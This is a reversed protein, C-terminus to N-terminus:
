GGGEIERDFSDKEIQELTQKHKGGSLGHKKRYKPDFWAEVDFTLFPSIAGLNWGVGATESPPEDRRHRAFALVGREIRPKLAALSLEAVGTTFRFEMSLERAAPLWIDRPLPEQLAEKLLRRILVRLYAERTELSLSGETLVGSPEVRLRAYVVGSRSRAQVFRPFRLRSDIRDTLAFLFSASGGGGLVGSAAEGSGGAGASLTGTPALPAGDIRFLGAIAQARAATPLAQLRPRGTAVRGSTMGEGLGSRLDVRLVPAGVPEPAPASPTERRLLVFLAAGHLFLAIAFACALNGRFRRVFDRRLM